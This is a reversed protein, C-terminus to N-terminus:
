IQGLYQWKAQLSPTMRMLRVLGKRKIRDNKEANNKRKKTEESGLM